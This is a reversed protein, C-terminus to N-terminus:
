KVTLTGYMGAAYHGPLNCLMVYKGPKLDVTATGTEGPGVESVEGPVDLADENVSGDSSTPLKSPDANTKAIVLEHPLAGENPASVNVAGATTKADPPVYAYENMAVKLEAGGAAPTATTSAAEADSEADSDVATAATTDAAETSSDDSSGCGALMGIALLGAAAFACGKTFRKM